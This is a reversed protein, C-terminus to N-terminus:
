SETGRIQDNRKMDLKTYGPIPHLFKMETAQIRSIQRVSMTWTESGFTLTPVAMSKYLKIISQKRAKLKLARQLTGTIQNFKNIKGNIDEENKYSPKCGLYDCESVQEIIKIDLVIKSRVSQTGKFAMCKTKKDSIDM